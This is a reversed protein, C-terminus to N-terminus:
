KGVLEVKIDRADGAFDEGCVFVPDFHMLKRDKGGPGCPVMRDHGSRWHPRPRAHTGGQWPKVIREDFRKQVESCFCVERLDGVMRERARKETEGGRALLKRNNEFEAPHLPRTLTRHKALLMNGNLAARFCDLAERMAPTEPDRWRCIAEEMSNEVGIKITNIMDEENGKSWSSIVMIDHSPNDKVQQHYILVATQTECFGKPVITLMAPYPQQYQDPPLRIEAEALLEFHSLSPRFVKPGDGLWKSVSYYALCDSPDKLGPAVIPHVTLKKPFHCSYEWEKVHEVRLWNPNERYIRFLEQVLIPPLFDEARM